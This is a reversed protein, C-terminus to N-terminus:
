IHILSLRLTLTKEKTVAGVCGSDHGGHGADIVLVFQDGAVAVKVSLLLLAVFLCYTKKM